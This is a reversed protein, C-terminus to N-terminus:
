CGSLSLAGGAEPGGGDGHGVRPQRSLEHSEDDAQAVRDDERGLDRRFPNRSFTPV